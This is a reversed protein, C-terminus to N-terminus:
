FGFGGNSAVQKNTGALKHPPLCGTKLLHLLESKNCMVGNIKIWESDDPTTGSFVILYHGRYEIKRRGRMTRVPVDNSTGINLLQELVSHTDSQNKSILKARQKEEITIFWGERYNFWIYDLNQCDFFASSLEPPCKDSRLWDSFPTSGTADAGCIQCKVPYQGCAPCRAYYSRQKTM